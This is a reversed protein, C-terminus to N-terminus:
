QVAWHPTIRTKPMPVDETYSSSSDTTIWTPEPADGNMDFLACGQGFRAVTGRQVSIAQYRFPVPTPQWPATFPGPRPAIVKVGELYVGGKFVGDLILTTPDSAMNKGFGFTSEGVVSDHVQINESTLPGKWGVLFEGVIGGIWLEPVRLQRFMTRTCHGFKMGKGEGIGYVRQMTSDELGSGYAFNAGVWQKPALVSVDIGALDAALARTDIGVLGDLFLGKNGRERPWDAAFASLCRQAEFDYVQFDLFDRSYLGEGIMGVARCRHMTVREASVVQFGRTPWFWPQQRRELWWAPRPGEVTVQDLVIDTAGARVRVIGAHSRNDQGPPQQWGGAYDDALTFHGGRIETNSDVVFPASLRLEVDHLITKM